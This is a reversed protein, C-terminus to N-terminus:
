IVLTKAPYHKLSVKDYRGRSIDQINKHDNLNRAESRFSMSFLYKHLVVRTSSILILRTMEFSRLSQSIKIIM